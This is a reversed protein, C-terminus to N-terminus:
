EGYRYASEMIFQLYNDRNDPTKMFTIETSLRSRFLFWKVCSDRVRTQIVQQSRSAPVPDSPFCVAVIGDLLRVLQFGLDHDSRGFRGM